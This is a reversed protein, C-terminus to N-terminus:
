KSADKSPIAIAPKQKVNVSIKKHLKPLTIVLTHEDANYEAAVKSLDVTDPLSQYNESFSRSMNIMSLNKTSANKEKETPPTTDDQKATQSRTEFESRMKVSTANFVFTTYGNEDQISIAVNNKTPNITVLENIKDAPVDLGKISMIVNDSDVTVDYSLAKHNLSSTTQIGSSVEQMTQRMEKINAELEEFMKDFFNASSSCTILTAALFSIYQIHNSM